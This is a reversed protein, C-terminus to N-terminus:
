PVILGVMFTHGSALGQAHLSPQYNLEKMRRLVRERTAPSVDRHNNFAKSVAVTSIGLEAAIDKMRIAMRVEFSAIHCAIKASRGAVDSTVYYFHTRWIM